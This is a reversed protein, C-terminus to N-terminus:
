APLEGSALLDEFREAAIQPVGFQEAKNVKSAGAGEGVVLAFTKKSV